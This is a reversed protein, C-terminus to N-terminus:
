LTSVGLLNTGDMLWLAREGTVSNSWVLDPKGDNNFDGTAAVTWELPFIGLTSVGLLNTGDMLWLAREGTVSNSWVLDPKGDNNFDGTAAVTWELPFIGLTSVGLLNTGDMLWLAREGTVSNSWVLDPKGDANFDGTAAVTWELPFIGLTSAAIYSTGDMLWLAREGTVSNSWILDLLDDGNFDPFLATSHGAPVTVSLKVSQSIAGGLHNSVVARHRNGNMGYTPRTITLTAATAGSYPGDNIVNSWTSGGDNSVQWQYAPPPHGTVTVTFQTSQRVRTMQDSPQALIVPASDNTADRLALTYEGGASAYIVDTLDSPVETAGGYENGWAVVTGDAKVAVAHRLGAAISVVDTLGAPIDNLGYYSGGWAVVTGDQKLALAFSIGAAIAKVDNLGAPVELESDLNNGWIAVTGNTRLVLAFNGGAAIQVVDDFQAPAINGWGVVRGNTRLALAHSIGSAVQVVHDLGAPIGALHKGSSNGWGTITGNAHIAFSHATGACLSVIPPDGAAVPDSEGYRNRGWGVVSGDRQLAIAHASGASLAIVDTLDPPVWTTGYSGNGWARVQTKAPVVTVFFPASSQTGYADTVRVFYYGGDQLSLNALELTPATAGIIPQSQHFWQYSVTTNGTASVNLTVNAGPSLIHRTPSLLTIEPLPLVTLTALDSTVQGLYNTVTVEYVGAASLELDALTLTAGTADPIDVGDKRWQYALPTTGSVPVAFTVTQGFAATQSVPQTFIQPATDGTGDCLVHSFGSGVALALVDRVDAPVSSQGYSNNGWGILTGDSKVALAHSTGTALDIVGALDEPIQTPEYDGGWAVVSGESSLALAHLNSSRIAVVGGLDDPLDLGGYYTDGWGVITGDAKLAFSIFRGAAIAVVDTLGAPVATQDHSNSGWGIVTGDKRLALSHGNGAAIAVVGNLGAPVTTQGNYDDGWAVVTGDSKLALSHTHGAAIAVVNNLGVPVVTQGTYPLGWAVVTGNRRLALTHDTGSAIAVADFLGAPPTIRGNTSIGWGRVRTATPAVTVFVAESRRTGYSDTVDVVYWGNDQLGLNERILGAENAGPIARGNHFWQYNLGGTGSATVSLNLTDGPVLVQRTPSLASIDPLPLVILTATASVTTGIHNSVSVEYEGADGLTLGNFQLSDGHAGAIVEGNRRWVYAFPGIGEVTVSLTLNDEVHRTTDQPQSLLIPAVDASADRLAVAHDAGAAIQLLLGLDDPMPSLSGSVVNWVVLTGDAELAYDIYNSTAIGVVGGLESPTYRYGNNFSNGWAVVTGDRKLAMSGFNSAAVAIVDALGDPINVQGSNNQGWAVVTGDAQLALSHIEGAAIAVVNNLGDPVTSQGYSNDGWSVVTGDSKLGLGHSYGKAVAIVDSLTSPPEPDTNPSHRVQSVTGDSKLILASSPGVSIEVVDSLEAVADAYPTGSDYGGWAVVTGDAKLVYSMSAGASVAIVDGLAAPVSTQGQDNVGWARVQTPGHDPLVFSTHRTVFDHADTIELTYAGAEVNSFDPLTLTAANAGAIPRNNRKWQYSLPTYVSTATVTLTLPEGPSGVIRSPSAATVVPPTEVQLLAAASVVKGAMNSVEVTYSGADESQLNSLTLTASTEGTLEVENHFWQYTFPATGTATVNFVQSGGQIQYADVPQLTITPPVPPSVTLTAVESTASGLVNAIVVDYDGSDAVTVGTLTLSSGTAGIIDDGDKRWQYVPTPFGDCMITLTVTDNTNAARSQPSALIQLARPAARKLFLSHLSGGAASVVGTDVLVPVARDETTGDGLAGLINYGTTWLSGDEKIILSHNDGAHVSAVGEAVTVPTTQSNATTGIGLAGYFNQGMGHLVGDVTLFFSYASGAAVAKTSSAIQVPSSQATTNGIGLQGRFNVGVGWLTRMGDESTIFLSFSGGPSIAVVDPWLELPSLQAPTAANEGLIGSSSSGMGWLSGDTKFFYSTNSNSGAIALAVGNAIQVPSLRDTQTGDGLQGSVNRGMAWLTGDAKVYLSHVSSASVSTVGTDVLVPQPRTETTGDGLQGYNNYGMSWLTGDAKVYFSVSGGAAYSTVGEAILIPRTHYPFLGDGLQGAYNYGTAWATHDSKILVLHSYGTAIAAVGTAIAVPALRNTLTGDGLQGLQNRGFALVTGDTKLLYSSFGGAAIAAVGEAIQVPSTQNDLTGNGIQGFGNGGAAWATGDAKLYLDHDRGSAVAVVDIALQTPWQGAYYYYGLLPGLGWLTGDTKFFYTRRPGGVVSVVQEAIQVPTLQNGATGGLGLFTGAGAGRLSGDTTVFHVMGGGAAVSTVNSAIQVPTSVQGVEGAGLQGLDNLGCAWLTGDTKIFFSQSESAAIKTVGSAIMVPTARNQTTGDGLQGYQNSGAAWLTGDTKLFLTHASGGAAAAIDSAVMLLTARYGLLGTGLQGYNEGGMGWLESHEVTLTAPESTVSTGSADAVVVRYRRHHFSLPVAALSLTEGTSGGHVADASVNAWSIGDDASMQWQYVVPANGSATVALEASEGALITEDGPHVNIVPAGAAISAALAVWFVLVVLKFCHLRRVLIPRIEAVFFPSVPRVLVLCVPM